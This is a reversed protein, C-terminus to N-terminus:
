KRQLRSASIGTDAAYAAGANACNLYAYYLYLFYFGSLPIGGRAVLDAPTYFLQVQSSLATLTLGVAGVLIVGSIVILWFRRARARM